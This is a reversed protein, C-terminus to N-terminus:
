EDPNTSNLNLWVDTIRGNRRRFLMLAETKFKQDNFVGTAQYSLAFLDGDGTLYKWDQHLGSVNKRGDM